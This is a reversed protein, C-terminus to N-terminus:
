SFEFGQVSFELTLVLGTFSEPAGDKTILKLKMYAYIVKIHM